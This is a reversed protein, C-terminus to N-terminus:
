RIRVLFVILIAGGVIVRRVGRDLVVREVEVWGDLSGVFGRRGRDM